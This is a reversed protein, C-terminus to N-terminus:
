EAVQNEKLQPALCVFRSNRGRIQQRRTVAAALSKSM